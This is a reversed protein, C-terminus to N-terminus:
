FRKLIFLAIMIAALIVEQEAASNATFLM